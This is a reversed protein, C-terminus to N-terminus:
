QKQNYKTSDSHSISCKKKLLHRHVGATFLGYFNLLLLENRGHKPLSCLPNAFTLYVQLNIGAEGQPWQPFRRKTEQGVVTKINQLIKRDEKLSRKYKETAFDYASWYRVRRWTRSYTLKHWYTESVATKLLCVKTVTFRKERLNKHLPM